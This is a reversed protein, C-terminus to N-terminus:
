ETLFRDADDEGGVAAFFDEVYKATNQKADEFDYDITNNPDLGFDEAAVIEKLGFTFVFTRGLARVRSPNPKVAEAVVQRSDCIQHLGHLLGKSRWRQRLARVYHLTSM